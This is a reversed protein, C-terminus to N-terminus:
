EKGSLREKVASLSRIKARLKEKTPKDNLMKLMERFTDIAKAYDSQLEASEAEDILKEFRLKAQAMAKARMAKIESVPLDGHTASSNPDGFDVNSFDFEIPATSNRSLDLQGSNIARTVANDPQVYYNGQGPFDGPPYGGVIPTYSTAFPRFSGSFMSGGFGNQVTLSPTVNSVTRSSGKSFDFGLSFNSNGFGFRGSSNADYGGFASGVGPGQSFILNPLLQGTPSLGVVRSGNGRGGPIGFGFSVGHNEHFSDSVRTMPTEVLINQAHLGDSVIYLLCFSCVLKALFKFPVNKM